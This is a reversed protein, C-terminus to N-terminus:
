NGIIKEVEEKAKKIEEYKKQAGEVTEKTEEYKKQWDGVSKQTENFLAEGQEVSKKLEGQGQPLLEQVQKQKKYYDEVVADKINVIFYYIVFASIATIIFILWCCYKNIRPRRPKDDKEKADAPSKFNRRKEELYEQNLRSYEMEQELQNSHKFTM